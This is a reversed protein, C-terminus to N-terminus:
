RAPTPPSHPTNCDNVLQNRASVLRNRAILRVTHDSDQRDTTVGLLSYNALKAINLEFTSAILMTFFVFIYWFHLLPSGIPVSLTGFHALSRGHFILANEPVCKPFVM